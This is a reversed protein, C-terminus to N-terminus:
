VTALAPLLMFVAQVQVVITPGVVASVCGVPLLVDDPLVEVDLPEVAPLSIGQERCVVALASSLQMTMHACITARGSIRLPVATAM